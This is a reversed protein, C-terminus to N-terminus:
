GIEEDWGGSAVGDLWLSSIRWQRGVRTAPVRGQRCLRRVTDESVALRRACEAVSVSGASRALAKRAARAAPDPRALFSTDVCRGGGAGLALAPEGPASLVLARVAFPEGTAAVVMEDGVRVPEGSADPPLPACARLLGHLARWAEEDGAGCGLVGALSAADVAAGSDALGGAREAAIRVDEESRAAGARSM